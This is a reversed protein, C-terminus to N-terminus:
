EMLKEIENAFDEPVMLPKELKEKAWIEITNDVGLFRVQSDIGVLQLYRKSILIRGSADMEIREADLVFQRFVQQKTKNWKNLKSRLTEIEKEWVSGPYLVLCDQFIDKRLVLWEENQFELLKRFAAPVFIRGKADAKAEFNGLFQNM